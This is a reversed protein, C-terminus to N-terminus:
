RPSTEDPPALITWEVTAALTGTHALALAFTFTTALGCPRQEQATVVVEASLVCEEPLEVHAAFRQRMLVGGPPIGDLARRLVRLTVLPLVGAGLRESVERSVREEFPGFRQGLSLQEYRLESLLPIGALTDARQSM